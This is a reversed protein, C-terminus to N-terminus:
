INVLPKVQSKDEKIWACCALVIIFPDFPIRLRPEGMGVLAVLVLSLIPLLMLMAGGSSQALPHLWIRQRWVYHLAPGLLLFIFATGYIANLIKESLERSPWPFTGVFLAIANQLSKFVFGIPDSGFSYRVLEWNKTSEYAGHPIYIQKVVGKMHNVPSIYASPHSVQPNKFIIKRYSAHGVVSAYSLENSVICFNGGNVSTCRNSLPAVVISLGVIATLISAVVKTIEFRFALVLFFTFSISAIWLASTNLSAALGFSIGSLFAYGCYHALHTNQFSLILFYVASLVILTMANDPLFYGAYAILPFYFSVVILSLEAVKESFLRRAIVYVALPIACSILFQAITALMFSNDFISLFGLLYGTGPASLTDLLHPQAFPHAFNRALRVHEAMEDTIYRTPPHWVFIYIFRCLVGVAYAVVPHPVEKLWSADGKFIRPVNRLVERFM